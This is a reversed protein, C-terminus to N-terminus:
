ELYIELTGIYPVDIVITNTDRFAWGGWGVNMDAIPTMFEDYFWVEGLDIVIEGITGQQATYDNGQWAYPAGVAGLEILAYWDTSM